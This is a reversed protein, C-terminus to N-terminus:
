LPGVKIGMSFTPTTGQWIEVGQIEINSVTGDPFVDIPLFTEVTTKISCKGLSVTCTGTPFGPLDVTTCNGPAVCNNSTARAKTVATLVTGDPCTLGGLSAGVKVDTKSVTAGFKGAGKSGFVCTPNSIAATCAQLATGNTQTTPSTCQQYSTVFEGKLGKAKSPAVPQASASTALLAVGMLVLVKRM